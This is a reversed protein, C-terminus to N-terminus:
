SLILVYLKGISAKTPDTRSKLNEVAKQPRLEHAFKLATMPTADNQILSNM